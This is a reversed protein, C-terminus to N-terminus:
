DFIRTDRRDERRRRPPDAWGRGAMAPLLASALAGPLALDLLAIREWDAVGTEALCRRLFPGFAVALIDVRGLSPLAEVLRGLGGSGEGLKM